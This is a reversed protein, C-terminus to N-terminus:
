PSRVTVVEQVNSLVMGLNVQWPLERPLSCSWSPISGM